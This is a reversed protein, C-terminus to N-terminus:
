EGWGGPRHLLRRLLAGGQVPAGTFVDCRHGVGGGHRGLWGEVDDSRLFRQAVTEGDPDTVVIYVVPDGSM